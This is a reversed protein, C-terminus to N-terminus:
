RYRRVGNGRIDSMNDAKRFLGSAAALGFLFGSGIIIAVFVTQLVTLTLM